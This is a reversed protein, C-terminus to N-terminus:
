AAAEAEQVFDILREVVAVFDRDLDRWSSVRGLIRRWAQAIDEPRRWAWGLGQCVTAKWDTGPPAQPWTSIGLAAPSVTQWVDVHRHGLVLVHKGRAGEAVDRALRSEKSGPELHDLLVGLRRDASPEFLDLRELLHDAGNLPEVVVGVHRLDDGWVREILEADHRGEVWLRSARAVQAPGVAGALSGSATYKPDPRRVRAPWTLQVPRGDIWFGPGVPFSRRRGQRDELVVLGNEWRVVAGCYGSAVEEVVLGLSLEVPQSTPRRTSRQGPALVDTSSRRNIM